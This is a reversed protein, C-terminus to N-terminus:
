SDQPTPAFVDRWAGRGTVHVPGTVRWGEDIRQVPMPIDVGSCQLFTGYGPGDALWLAALAPLVSCSVRDEDIGARPALFRFAATAPSTHATLILGIKDLALMRARDPRASRLTAADPLVVLYDRGADFIRSVPVGLDIHGPPQETIGVAPMQLMPVGGEHGLVLRVRAPGGLAVVPRTDHRDTLFASAALAGHGCYPVEGHPGFWRLRLTGGANVAYTVEEAPLRRSAAQLVTDPPWHALQVVVMPNGEGPGHGLVSAAVWQDIELM